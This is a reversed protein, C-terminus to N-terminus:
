PRFLIQTASHDRVWGAITLIQEAHADDNFRGYEDGRMFVMGDFVIVPTRHEPAAKLEIKRLNVWLRSETNFNTQNSM